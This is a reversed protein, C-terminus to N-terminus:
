REYRHIIWDLLAYYDKLDKVKELLKKLHQGVAAHYCSVYTSFVNFSPPYSGQLDRKVNELDEVITKGLLGLHVALWSAKLEMADLPVSDLKAQVGESM